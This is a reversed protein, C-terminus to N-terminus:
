LVVKKLSLQIHCVGELYLEYYMANDKEYKNVEDSKGLEYNDFFAEEYHEILSNFNKKGEEKTRYYFTDVTDEYCNENVSHDVLAYFEIKNLEMIM